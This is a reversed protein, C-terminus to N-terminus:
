LQTGANEQGEERPQCRKAKEELEPVVHAERFAADSNNISSLNMGM